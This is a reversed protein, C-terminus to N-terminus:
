RVVSQGDSALSYHNSMSRLLVELIRDSRISKLIDTKSSHWKPKHFLPPAVRGTLRSDSKTAPSQNGPAPASASHTAWSLLSVVSTLLTRCHGGGLTLRCDTLWDLYFELNFKLCFELSKHHALWSKHRTLFTNIQCILTIQEPYQLLWENFFSYMFYFSIYYFYVLLYYFILSRQHALFGNIQCILWKKLMGIFYLM